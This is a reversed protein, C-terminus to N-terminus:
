VVLMTKFLMEESSYYSDASTCADPEVSSAPPQTVLDRSPGRHLLTLRAFLGWRMGRDTGESTPAASFESM